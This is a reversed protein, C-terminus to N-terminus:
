RVLRSRAVYYAVAVALSFLVTGTSSFLETIQLAPDYLLQTLLAPFVALALTVSMFVILKLSCLLIEVAYRLMVREKWHDSVARSAITKGAKGTTRLLRHVQVLLPLRTFLEVAIVSALAVLLYSM